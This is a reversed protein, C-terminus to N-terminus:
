LSVICFYNIDEIKWSYFVVKTELTQKHVSYLARVSAQHLCYSELYCKKNPSLAKKLMQVGYKPAWMQM